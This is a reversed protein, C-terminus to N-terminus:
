PALLKERRAVHAVAAITIAASALNVGFAIGAKLPVYTDLSLTLLLWLGLTAKALWLVAWLLTLGGFLRAIRTRSALEADVPYFDGAVKGALPRGLGISVLFAAALLADTVIPQLFYVFPNATAVAVATRGTLVVTTLVLLASTRRRTVARWGLTGYSWALTAIIAVWVGAAAFLTYFVAAPVICGIGLNVAARRAVSGIRIHPRSIPVALPAPLALATVTM